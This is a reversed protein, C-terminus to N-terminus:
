DGPTDEKPTEQAPTEEDPPERGPTEGAPTEAPTKEAAARKEEDAATEVYNLRLQTLANDLLAQEERSLNGGTKARLMALMDIAHRALPLQVETKGTEPSQVKGLAQWASQQFLVVLQLFLADDQRADTM